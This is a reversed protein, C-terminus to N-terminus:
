SGSSRQGRGPPRPWRVVLRPAAIDATALALLLDHGLRNAGGYRHNTLAIVGLGSAPLWRMNSGFGPIRRQPRRGPGM